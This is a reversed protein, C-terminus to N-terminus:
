NLTRSFTLSKRVALYDMLSQLHDLVAVAISRPWILRMLGDDETISSIPYDSAPGPLNGTLLPTDMPYSPNTTCAFSCSRAIPLHMESRSLSDMQFLYSQGLFLPLKGLCRISRFCLGSWSPPASTFASIPVLVRHIVQALPARELNWNSRMVLSNHFPTYTFELCLSARALLPLSIIPSTVPRLCRCSLQSAALYLVQRERSDGPTRPCNTHQGKFSAQSM